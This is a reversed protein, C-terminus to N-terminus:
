YNALIVKFKSQTDIPDNNSIQNLCNVGQVNPKHYNNQKYKKKISKIVQYAYQKQRM